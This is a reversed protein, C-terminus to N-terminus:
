SETSCQRAHHNCQRYCNFETTNLLGSQYPHLSIIILPPSFFQSVQMREIKKLEAIDAARETEWERRFNILDPHEEPLQGVLASLTKMRTSHKTKMRARLQKTTDELKQLEEKDLEDM